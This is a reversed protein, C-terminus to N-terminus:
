HNPFKQCKFIMHIKKFHVLRAIYMKSHLLQLDQGYQVVEDFNVKCLCVM